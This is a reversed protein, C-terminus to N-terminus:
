GDLRGGMPVTDGHMMGGQMMGGGMRGQMEKMMSRALALRERQDVTLLGRAQVAARAVAAHALVMHSSAERLRAEYGELDTSEPDLLEAAARMAEMGQMMHQRMQQGTSDHMAELQAIQNETLELSVRLQLIMGPGAAMGMMGGLMAPQGHMGQMMQMMGGQMMGMGRSTDAGAGHGQNGQAMLPVAGVAALLGATALAKTIMTKM